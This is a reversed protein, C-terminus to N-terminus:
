IKDQESVTIKSYIPFYITSVTIRVSIAINAKAQFTRMGISLEISVAPTLICAHSNCTIM